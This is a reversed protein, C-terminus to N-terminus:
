GQIRRDNEELMRAMEKIFDANDKIWQTVKDQEAKKEKIADNILLRLDDDTLLSGSMTESDWEESEELIDECVKRRKMEEVTHQWIREFQDNNLASIHTDIIELVQEKAQRLVDEILLEIDRDGQNRAVYEVCISGYEAIEQRIEQLVEIPVAQITPAKDIEVKIAYYNDGFDQEKLKDADILRM